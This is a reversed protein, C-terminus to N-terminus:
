DRATMAASVDRSAVVTFVVKMVFLLPFKVSVSLLLTTPPNAPNIAGIWALKVASLSFTPMSLTFLILM